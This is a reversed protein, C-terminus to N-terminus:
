VGSSWARVGTVRGVGCGCVWGAVRKWVCLMTYPCAQVQAFRADQQKEKASKIYKNSKAAEAETEAALMQEEESRIAARMEERILERMATVNAKEEEEM